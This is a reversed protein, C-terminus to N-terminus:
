FLFLSLFRKMSQFFFSWLSLFRTLSHSVLLINANIFIITTTLASFHTSSYHPLLLLFSPCSLYRNSRYYSFFFIVPFLHGYQVRQDSSKGWIKVQASRHFSIRIMWRRHDMVAPIIWRCPIMQLISDTCVIQQVDRLTNVLLCRHINDITIPCRRILPYNYCTRKHGDRTTRRQNTAMSWVFIRHQFRRHHVRRRRRCRSNRILRRLIPVDIIQTVNLRLSADITWARPVRNYVSWKVFNNCLCTRSWRVSVTIIVKGFWYKCIKPRILVCRVRMKLFSDIWFCLWLFPRYEVQFTGHIAAKRYLLRLCKSKDIQCGVPFPCDRTM